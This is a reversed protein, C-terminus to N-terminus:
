ARLRVPVSEIANNGYGLRNWEPQEPQTRGALDTARARLVVTGPEDISTMLEWRQWSHRHREGVLRSEQWPGGGVSVEVRAIPAAGSWAVGRIVLDGSRLDEQGRPETILSRVRQLSVPERVVEGARQWEFYYSDTQFHGTFEREVLEIEALWKVSTVAYWGPVILRLPFGHQIPLPEGNMAYALLADADRAVDIGLSREFCISEASGRVTGSDAGRFVVERAERRVGARDLVETLPIGTWEATSAAGLGWQEGEVQPRFLSRGNGACELTVLMTESGMNKLDRLGLSLPRDASGHVKLRWDSPEVAPLPFHNRVYFHANPMVLGGILAPISTECNLPHTRHVVLGSEVAAKWAEEPDLTAVGGAASASRLTTSVLRRSLERSLEVALGPHTALLEELHERHLIFLEADTLARVTASRPGGLLLAIEGFFSGPGLSAVRQRTKESRVEVQGSGIFYMASGPEGERFVVDGAAFTALRLKRALVELDATPIGRLFQIAGLRAAIMM